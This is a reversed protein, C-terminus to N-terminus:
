SEQDTSHTKIAELGSVTKEMMVSDEYIFQAADFPRSRAGADDFHSVDFYRCQEEGCMESAAAEVDTFPQLQDFIRAAARYSNLSPLVVEYGNISTVTKRSSSHKHATSFANPKLLRFAADSVIHLDGIAAHGSQLQDPQQESQYIWLFLLLNLIMLLYFIQRM